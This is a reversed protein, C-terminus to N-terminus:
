HQETSNTCIEDIVFAYIFAMEEFYKARNNGFSHGASADIKVLIPRRTQAIHRLSAAFKLPEWYPVRPDQRGGVMLCSPYPTNAVINHMPAYERISEFGQRTHPNGWEDWETTTLPITSDAMTCLIDLFPVGLVVSHFLNPKQNMAAAVLLGGASRGEAVLLHSRTVNHDIFWAAVDVFDNISNRKFSCRGSDHWPRGMEGGGRVHAVACAIGRNLMPLRLTSFSPELSHGYAGYGLLHIPCPFQVSKRHVLSVPISAIGDRSPVYLRQCCYDSKAYGAFNKAYLVRCKGDMLCVSWLQPPTVMSEYWIVCHQSEYDQKPAMDMYYADEQNTTLLQHVDMVANQENVNLKWLQRLGDQRGQLVIYHSFTVM